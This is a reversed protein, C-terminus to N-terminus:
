WQETDTVWLIFPDNEDKRAKKLYREAKDPMLRKMGLLAHGRIRREGDNVYGKLINFAKGKTEDSSFQSVLRLFDFKINGEVEELKKKIMNLALDDFKVIANGVGQRVTFLSDAMSAMLFPLSEPNKLKGLAEATLIRGYELTDNLFPIIAGAAAVNGFDGLARVASLHVKRRDETTDQLIVLLSDYGENIKLDGIYKISSALYAKPNDGLCELIKGKSIEPFAKIIETNARDVLGSTTIYHEFFIYNLAEEGRDIMEARAARVSKIANGVEWMAAYTFLDDMGLTDMMAALSDEESLTVTDTAFMTDPIDIKDPVSEANEVSSVTSAPAIESPNEAFLLVVSLLIILIMKFINAKWLVTGQSLSLSYNQTLPCAKKGKTTISMFENKHQNCRRKPLNRGFLLDDHYAQGGTLVDGQNILPNSDILFIIGLRKLPKDIKYKSLFEM